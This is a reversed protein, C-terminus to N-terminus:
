FKYKALQNQLNEAMKALTHSSASIQQLSATQQEVTSSIEETSAATEETISSINEMESVVNNSNKSLKSMGKSINQINECTSKSASEIEKLVKQVNEIVSMNEDVEKANKDMTIVANTTKNQIEKIMETIKDTADASQGALKKVEEAVVAFGKGHEGARAAEIAANLALLNTQSAINKILDVIVGIENGLQGLTNIEGSIIASTKKLQNITKVANEAQHSGENASNQSIKSVELTEEINEAMKQVFENIENINNLSNNVSVAQENTGTVLQNLTTSVQQTGQATQEIAASTQESAASLDESTSNVESILKRINLIVTKFARNLEGIETNNLDDEVEVTLDNEAIKHSLRALNEIPKTISRGITFLTILISLIIVVISSVVIPLIISQVQKDIDDIYDGTGFVWQWDKIGMVYALKPYTIKSEGKFFYYTLFGKGQKGVKIMEEMYRNGKEDVSNIRPQGVIQPKTPLALCIANYDYLYFYGRKDEFFRINNILEKARNQAETITIEGKNAKAVYVQISDYLTKTTNELMIQREKYLSNYLNISYLYSIVLTVLATSFMISLIVKKRISLKDLIHYFKQM